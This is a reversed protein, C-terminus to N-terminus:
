FQYRIQKVYLQIQTKGFEKSMVNFVEIRLGLAVVAQQIVQKLNDPNKQRTSLFYSDPLGPQRHM